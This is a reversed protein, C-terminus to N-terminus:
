FSYKNNEDEHLKFKKCLATEYSRRSTISNEKHEGMGGQYFIKVLIVNGYFRDKHLDHLLNEAEKKTTFFCFGDGVGVYSSYFNWTIYKSRGVKQYISRIGFISGLQGNSSLVFLKWGIGSKPIPKSNEHLHNCM